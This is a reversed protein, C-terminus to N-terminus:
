KQPRGNVALKVVEYAGNYMGEQNLKQVQRTLHDRLEQDTLIRDLMANMSESSGCEFTADGEEQGHVAGYVEHGGIHRMFIKPIPYYALESPKTILIDCHRMLLNTSYVAEFIEKNYILYIGEKVDSDMTEVFAQLKAYDDFFRVSEKEFAPQHKRLYDYMALHDGFNLFLAAKKSRVYPLLHDMMDLFQKEGAGAGGVTLLFRIPEGKASRALRLASDRDINRVLEDDVYHGVEYLDKEPMGKLPKDAMGNLMKYGLYAFPTQVTHIAGESLHLAMPWNDPIANVVHTMGAHIAAQSPWVHTAIYPTDKPISHFLPVLLETNKQDMSNYTLKRFGESNLPEWVIQNFLKSKQSIKSGTSYLENQYRIMKSGTADFSALDLWYPQYGLAKACSAMAISIRYHGFGMRINGIIVANKPFLFAESSVVLNEVGMAKLCPIERAALPYPKKSDDGFKKLYKKKSANGKRITNKDIPNGFILSAKDEM